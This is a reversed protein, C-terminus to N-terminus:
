HLPIYIDSDNPLDYMCAHCDSCDEDCKIGEDPIESEDEVAIFRQANGKIDANSGNVTLYDTISFDLHDSASYTYSIIGLREELIRAIEEAKEVDKQNRFDGSENFRFFKVENKMRKYMLIFATAFQKASLEDWIYIQRRRYDLVGDYNQEPKVAYCKDDGNVWAQCSETQANICDTASGMNFISIYKPLKNNGFALHDKLILSRETNDSNRLREQLNQIGDVKAQFDM